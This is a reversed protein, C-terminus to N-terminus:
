FLSEIDEPPRGVVAKEGRIAIPREMLIPAEAMADLLAGDGSDVALGAEKFTKEGRRTWEVVPRGLQAHLADLEVRSLPNELYLREEFALGSEELIAKAARSKSCRPNHLLLISDSSMRNGKEIAIPLSREICFEGLFGLVQAAELGCGEGEVDPSVGLPVADDIRQRM